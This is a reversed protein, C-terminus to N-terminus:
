IAVADIHGSLVLRRQKWLKIPDRFEEVEMGRVNYRLSGDKNTGAADDYANYVRLITFNEGYKAALLLERLSIEFARRSKTSTCKVEYYGIIRPQGGSSANHLQLIDYPTGAEKAENVWVFTGGYKSQLWQRAYKEAARSYNQSELQYDGRMSSVVTSRSGLSGVGGNSCFDAVAEHKGFEIVDGDGLEDRDRKSANRAEVLGMAESEVDAWAEGQFQPLYAPEMRLFGDPLRPQGGSGLADTRDVIPQSLAGGGMEPMARYSPMVTDSLLRQDSAGHGPPYVVRAKEHPAQSVSWAPPAVSSSPSYPRGTAPRGVISRCQSRVHDFVKTFHLHRPVLLEALGEAVIFANCETESLYITSTTPSYHVKVPWRRYFRAGNADCLRLTVHPTSCVVVSLGSLHRQVESAPGGAVNNWYNHPLLFQSAGDERLYEATIIAAQVMPISNAIRHHIQSSPVNSISTYTVEIDENYVDRLGLAILLSRIYMDPTRRGITSLQVLCLSSSTPTAGDGEARFQHPNCGVIADTFYVRSNLSRFSRQCFVLPEDRDITPELDEYWGGERYAIAGWMMETLSAVQEGEGSTINTSRHELARMTRFARISTTWSAVSCQLTRHLLDDATDLLTQGGPICMLLADDSLTTSENVLSVCLAALPSQLLPLAYEGYGVGDRGSKSWVGFVSEVPVFWGLVSSATATPIFLYRIGSDKRNSKESVWSAAVSNFLAVIDAALTTPKGTGVLAVPLRLSSVTAATDLGCISGVAVLASVGVASVVIGAASLFERNWTHSSTTLGVLSGLEQPSQVTFTPRSVTVLGDEHPSRLAVASVSRFQDFLRGVSPASDLVQSPLVFEVMPGLSRQHVVPVWPEGGLYVLTELVKSTLEAGEGHLFVWAAVVFRALIPAELSTDALTTLATIAAKVIAALEEPDGGDLSLVPDTGTPAADMPFYCHSQLFGIDAESMGNVWMDVFGQLVPSALWAESLEMIRKDAGMVGSAGDVSEELDGFDIDLSIAAKGNTTQAITPPNMLPAAMNTAGVAILFPGLPHQRPCPTPPIAVRQASGSTIAKGNASKVAVLEQQFRANVSGAAERVLHVLWTINEIHIGSLRTNSIRPLGKSAAISRNFDRVFAEMLVISDSTSLLNQASEYTLLWSIFDSTRIPPPGEEIVRVMRQVDGGCDATSGFFSNFFTRCVELALISAGLGLERFAGVGESMTIEEQLEFLTVIPRTSVAAVIKATVRGQLAVLRSLAPLQKIAVPISSASTTPFYKQLVRSMVSEVTLPIGARMNAEVLNAVFADVKTALDEPPASSSM